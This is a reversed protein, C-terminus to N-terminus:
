RKPAVVAFVAGQPDLGQVIWSGGPVEQPGHLVKGGGAEIKAVAQDASPVNFYFQWVPAPVVAPKNMMGGVPHGGTAFLQYKGMPGMDVVDAETWGFLGQYFPFVAEIDIAYLEHWGTHGPAMQDASGGAGGPQFL